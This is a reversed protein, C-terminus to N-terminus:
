RFFLYYIALIYIVNSVIFARSKTRLSYSFPALIKETDTITLVDYGVVMFPFALVFLIATVVWRVYKNKISYIAYYLGVGCFLEITFPILLCLIFIVILVIISIAGLQDVKSIFENIM